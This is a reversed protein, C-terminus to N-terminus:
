ETDRGAGADAPVTDVASVLKGCHPCRVPGRRQAILSMM